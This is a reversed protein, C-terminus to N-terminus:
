KVAVPINSNNRTGDGLQGNENDGWCRVEGTELLACSHSIGLDLATVPVDLGQVHVASDSDINTGDGLQGSTNWGWCQVAGREILACNHYYGSSVAIAKGILGRVYAKAWSGPIGSFPPGNELLIFPGDKGGLQGFQNGGWCEIRGTTTVLCSHGTGATIDPFDQPEGKVSALAMNSPPVSETRSTDSAQYKAFCGNLLTNLLLISVVLKINPM